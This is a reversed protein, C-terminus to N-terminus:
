FTLASGQVSSVRPVLQLHCSGKFPLVITIASGLSSVGEAIRVGGRTFAASPAGGSGGGM